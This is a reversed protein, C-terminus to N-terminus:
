LIKGTLAGMVEKIITYEPALLKVMSEYIGIFAFISFVVLGLTLALRLLDLEDSSNNVESDSLKLIYSKNKLYKLASVLVTTGILYMIIHVGGEVQTGKVYIEFVDSGIAPLESLGHKLLELMEILEQEM